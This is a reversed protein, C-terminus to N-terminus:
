GMTPMAKMMEAHLDEPKVDRIHTAISWNHGFPDEISGYRDGWFMEAVPMTVECSAKVARAVVADVDDVSLHMTVPSGTLLKPGRAGWQPNEDMLMVPAGNIRVMAHVLKGDEGPLRVEEVAGFAEKYFEIAKAAGGIVLHPTIAPMGDPIAKVKSM